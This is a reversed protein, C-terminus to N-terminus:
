RRKSYLYILFLGCIFLQFDVQLYWGWGMCMRDGDGVFNSVFFVERWMTSCLASGEAQTPWLPGSGFKMFVSYFFMMALIYAPWIRLARQLLGFLCIKINIKNRLMIFALFFGGLCFFIDVSLLGAEILLYFPSDAALQFDTINIMGAGLTFSYNHGIVVWMMSLARIGDLM